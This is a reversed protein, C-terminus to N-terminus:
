ITYNRVEGSSWATEGTVTKVTTWSAGFDDSYAITFDKWARSPTTSATLRLTAMATTDPFLLYLERGNTVDAACTWSTSTDADVLNTYLESSATQTQDVALHEVGRTLMSASLSDLADVEGMAWWSADNADTIQVRYIRKPLIRTDLPSSPSFVNTSIGSSNLFAKTYTVDDTSVEIDYDNSTPATNWYIAIKSMQYATGFDYKVWPTTDSPNNAWQTGTNGDYSEAGTESGSAYSSETVTSVPIKVTTPLTTYVEVESLRLYSSQANSTIRMYRFASTDASTVSLFASNALMDYEAAIWDDSLVGSRLYAWGIYGSFIFSNSPGERGLSITDQGRSSFDTIASDTGKAGGDLWTHRATSGNYAAHQRYWTNADPDLTTGYLWGNVDDWISPALNGNDVTLSMGDLTAGSSQDRYSFLTDQASATHRFSCGITIIGSFTSIDSVAVDYYSSGDCYMAGGGAVDSLTGAAAAFTVGTETGYAHNGTRDSADTIPITVFDYDSWVSATQDLSSNGWTLTITTNSAATIDVKIYAVGTSSGTNITVIDIPKNTASQTARLDTGDTTQSWFSAPLLSLDLYLPFNTLDSGVKGALITITAETVPSTSLHATLASAIIGIHSFM